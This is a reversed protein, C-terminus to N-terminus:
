FSGVTLLHRNIRCNSGNLDYTLPLCEIPLSNWLRRATYPFLSNVYVDMMCDILIVLLGGGLILVHFWNLWNLYVDVLTIGIYLFSKLQSRHALAELSAALSPGAHGNKYSIGCNWTAVLLVLESIVVTNWAHGQPLNISSCLLRM